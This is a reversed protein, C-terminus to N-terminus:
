SADGSNKYNNACIQRHVAITALTDGVQTLLAAVLALDDDNMERAIAVSLTNVLTTLELPDVLSVM